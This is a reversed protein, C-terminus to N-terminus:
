EDEKKPIGAHSTLENLLQLSIGDTLKNWTIGNEHYNVLGEKDALNYLELCCRYQWVYHKKPLVKTSYDDFPYLISLAKFRATVILDELVKKYNKETGFIVDIYPIRKTLMDYIDEEVETLEMIDDM